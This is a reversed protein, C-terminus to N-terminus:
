QLGYVETNREYNNGSIKVFNFNIVDSQIPFKLWESYNKKPKRFHNNYRPNEWSVWKSYQVSKMLLKSSLSGNPSVVQNINMPMLRICLSNLYHEKKNEILDDTEIWGIIAHCHSVQHCVSSHRQRRIRQYFQKQLYRSSSHPLPLSIRNSVYTSM